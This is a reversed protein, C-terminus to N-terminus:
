SPDTLRGMFLVSGTPIDRILFIFPRDASFSEWDPDGDGDGDIVVATAATAETGDEDVAIFAEHLVNSIWMPRPAIGNFNAAGEEFAIPMGLTELPEVLNTPTSFSFLPMTVSVLSRDNADISTLISELKDADFSAEFDAFTEAEPLIVVMSLEQGEYLMELAQYGDGEAYVFYEMLHMMPVSVEGDFTTFVRDYTSEEPFRQAWSASFYIANVLVLKTRDSIAGDELLEEIREETHDSTWANIDLRAEETASEFDVTHIGADYNIAMLDLYDSEFPYGRQAWVSNILNLTFPYAEDPDAVPTEARSALELDLWNFGRHLTEDDLTFHLTERIQRATEGQAGAYAMALAVSVSFPSCFLNGDETAAIQHYLDVGFARNDQALQEVETDTVEPSAERVADSRVFSEDVPDGGDNDDCGLLSAAIGVLLALASTLTGFTGLKRTM